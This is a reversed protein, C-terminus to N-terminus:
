HRSKGCMVEIDPHNSFQKLAYNHKECFDDYSMFAGNRTMCLFHGMRMYELEEASLSYNIENRQMTEMLYLPKKIAVWVPMWDIAEVELTAWDGITVADKCIEWHDVANVFLACYQTNKDPCHLLSQCYDYYENQFNWLCDIPMHESDLIPARQHLFNHLRLHKLATAIKLAM